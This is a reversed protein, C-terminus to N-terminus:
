IGADGLWYTLFCGEGKFIGPNECLVYETRPLARKRVPLLSRLTEAMAPSFAPVYVLACKERRAIGDAKALLAAFTRRDQAGGCDVCELSSVRGSRHVQLIMYATLAGERYHGLLIRPGQPNKFCYWNVIESTKVARTPIRVREAEWWLDFDKGAAKLERVEGATGAAAFGGFIKQGVQLIPAAIAALFNGWAKRGLSAALVERFDAVYVGLLAEERILKEYGLRLLVKEVHVNPTTGFSVKGASYAVHKRLLRLSNTRYEKIVRWTTPTYVVAELGDLLFAAFINGLFGVIREGDLLIWGRVWRDDFAPNADWWFKLREMWWGASHEDGPFESLFAALREYDSKEVERLACDLTQM